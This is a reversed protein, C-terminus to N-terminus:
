RNNVFMMDLNHITNGDLLGDIFVMKGCVFKGISAFKVSSSPFTLRGHNKKKYDMYMCLYFQLNPQINSLIM